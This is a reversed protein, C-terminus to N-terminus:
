KNRRDKLNQKSANRTIAENKSVCEQQQFDRLTKEENTARIQLDYNIINVLGWENGQFATIQALKRNILQTQNSNSFSSCAGVKAEGYPHIVGDSGRVHHKNEHVGRSFGLAQSSSLGTIQAPHVGTSHLDGLRGCTMGDNHFLAGQRHAYSFSHFRNQGSCLPGGASNLATEATSQLGSNRTSPM